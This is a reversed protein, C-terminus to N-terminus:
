ATQGVEVLWVAPEEQRKFTLCYGQDTAIVWRDDTRSEFHFLGGAVRDVRGRDNSVPGQYDLYERRHDDLREVPTPAVIPWVPSRWTALKAGPDPEFMLDYHPSGVGTHHLIAFRLTMAPPLIPFGGLGASRKVGNVRDAIVSIILFYIAPIALLVLAIVLLSFWFYPFPWPGTAIGLRM